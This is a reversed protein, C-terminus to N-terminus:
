NPRQTMEEIVVPPIKPQPPNGTAGFFLYISVGMAVVVFGFLIWEAQKQNKIIGGSSKMVMKVMKPTSTEEYLKVAKYKYSNDENFSVGETGVNLNTSKQPTIVAQIKPSPETPESPRPNNSKAEFEKLAQDIETNNPINPQPPMGTNYM